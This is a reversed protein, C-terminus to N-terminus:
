RLVVGVSARWFHFSGFQVTNDQRQNIIYRTAACGRTARCFGRVGAGVNM